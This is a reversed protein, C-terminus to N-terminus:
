YDSKDVPNSFQYEAPDTLLNSIIEQLDQKKECLCICDTLSARVRM